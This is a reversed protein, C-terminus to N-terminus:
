EKPSSGCQGLIKLVKAFKRAPITAKNSIRAVRKSATVFEEQMREINKRQEYEIMADIHGQTIYTNRGDKFVVMTKAIPKIEVARTCNNVDTLVLLKGNEDLRFNELMSEDLIAIYKM